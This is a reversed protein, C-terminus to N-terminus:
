QLILQLVQLLITDEYFLPSSTVLLLSVDSRYKNRVPLVELHFFIFIKHSKIHLSLNDMLFNDWIVDVNTSYSVSKRLCGCMGDERVINVEALSLLFEHKCKCKNDSLLLQVSIYQDNKIKRLFHDM